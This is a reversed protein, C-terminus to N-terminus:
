KGRFYLWIGLIVASWPFVLAISLLVKLYTDM